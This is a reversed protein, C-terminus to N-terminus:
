FCLLKSLKFTLTLIAEKREGGSGVKQNKRGFPHHLGPLPESSQSVQLPSAARGVGTRLLDYVSDSSALLAREGVVMVQAQGSKM